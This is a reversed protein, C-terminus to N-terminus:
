RFLYVLYYFVVATFTLSDLRDLLGGHGRIFQGLDKVGLDRKIASINLDGFLGAVSLLAGTILAQWWNFFTLFSFAYALLTTGLLGGLFGEWTKNPSIQPALKHRGLAKGFCFQLVDNFQTLVLLYILLGMGGVKFSAPLWMSLVMGLHGLGYGCIMLFWLLTGNANIVGQANGRLVMFSPIVLFMTAPIFITGLNTHGLYLALYNVVIALGATFVVPRDSQRFKKALVLERFSMFSLIALGLFTVSRHIFLFVFIILVMAWWSNIKEMVGQFNGTKKVRTLLFFFLTFLSLLALILMVMTRVQSPAHLFYFPLNM